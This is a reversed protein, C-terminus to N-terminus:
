RKQIDLKYFIGSDSDNRVRLFYTSNSVLPGEWIFEQTNNVKNYEARSGLGFHEMLAGDGRLWLNLQPYTYIELNVHNSVHGEGPSETLYMTYRRIEPEIQEFNQFRFAFWVDEGADLWDQHQGAKITLPQAISAGAAEQASLPPLQVDVIQRAPLLSKNVPHTPRMNGLETNIIDGTMLYYDVWIESDNKVKIYYRDGDLVMGRWIREGTNPDKDRSVQSGAGFNRADDPTGRTWIQYQDGTFLEFNVRNAINGEGPTHFLTLSMEEFLNEDLDDSLFTYWHEAHPSLRNVNNYLLPLAEPPYISNDSAAPPASVSAPAADAEIKEKARGPSAPAASASQASGAGPLWGLEAANKLWAAAEEASLGQVAQAAMLWESAGEADSNLPPLPSKPAAVAPRSAVAASTSATIAGGPPSTPLANQQSLATLHYDVTLDSKNQIHIYYIEGADVAGAWLREGTDPDYDSSVLQGAGTKRAGGAGKELFIKVQEFTYVDFTVQRATRSDGPKFVLNLVISQIAPSGLDSQSYSYWFSQGPALSGVNLGNTLLHAVYPSTGVGQEASVPTIALLAIASFVLLLKLTKNM